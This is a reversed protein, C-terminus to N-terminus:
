RGITSFPSLAIMALGALFIFSNKADNAGATAGASLGANFPDSATPWGGTDLILEQDRM